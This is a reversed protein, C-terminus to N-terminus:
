KNSKLISYNLHKSNSAWTWKIGSTVDGFYNNFQYQEGRETSLIEDYIKDFINKLKTDYQNFKIEVFPIAMKVYM